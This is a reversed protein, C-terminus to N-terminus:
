KSGHQWARHFSRKRDQAVGERDIKGTGERGNEGEKATKKKRRRRRRRKWRRV